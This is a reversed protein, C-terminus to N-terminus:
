WRWWPTTPRRRVRRASRKRRHEDHVGDSTLLHELRLVDRAGVPLTRLDLREFTRRERHLALIAEKRVDLHREPRRRERRGDGNADLLRALRDVVRDDGLVLRHRDPLGDRERRAADAEEVVREDIQREVDRMFFPGAFARVRIASVAPSPFSTWHISGSFTSRSLPMADNRIGCKLSAATTRSTPVCRRRCRSESRSQGRSRVPM